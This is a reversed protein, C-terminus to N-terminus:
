PAMLTGRLLENYIGEIVQGLNSVELIYIIFTIKYFLVFAVNQLNRQLGTLLQLALNRESVVPLM